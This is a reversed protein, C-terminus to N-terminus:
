SKLFPVVADTWGKPNEINLIHGAPDLEAFHSGPLADHMAKMVEPPAGQDQKGAVFLTPTKIDPVRSLYDLGILAHGCGIYGQAPTSRIMGRVKDIAAPNATMFGSTFWRQVTPEVLSELGKENIQAIRQRWAEQYPGPADARCACAILRELRMPHNIALGLGTMGGLSLGIFSARSISFHNMLGIVDNELMAFSYAGDPADTGGHGRSDYRLIKYDRSLAAAQEDWMSLTSAISNSFILWPAGEHGEVVCNISIGNAKIKM